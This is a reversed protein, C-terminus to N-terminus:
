LTLEEAYQALKQESLRIGLGPGDPLSVTGDPAMAIPPDCVDDVLRELPSGYGLIPHMAPVSAAFHIMAATGPTLPHKSGMLVGMGAADAIEAMRRCLYMGGNKIPKLCITDVADNKALNIVDYPTWASEDATIPTSLARRVARLGGIDWWAVPQEVAEIGYKEMKRLTPIAVEVTYAGNVDVEIPYDAGVADRVAAVREVDERPDGFGAKVTLMAYGLSKLRLADEAMEKPAKVGLSRSVRFRTCYIGGLVVAAPQAMVKGAIDYLATDIAAKSCLFGTRGQNLGELTDIVRGIELPNKGILAPTFYKRLAIYIGEQTEGGREVLTVGTEGVGTIGEDTRIQVIVQRKHKTVGPAMRYPNRYPITVMQCVVDTIKM